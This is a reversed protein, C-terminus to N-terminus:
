AREAKEPSAKTSETVIESFEAVGAFDRGIRNIFNLRNEQLSRDEALIMVHEFFEDIYPALESLARLAEPYNKKARATEFRRGAPQMADFLRKEVATFLSPDLKPAVTLKLQQAQKVINRMRKFAVAITKFSPTDRIDSM